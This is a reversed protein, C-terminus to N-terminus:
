ILQVRYANLHLLIMGVGLDPGPLRGTMRCHLFPRANPVLLVQTDPEPLLRAAADAFLAPAPLPCFGLGRTFFRGAPVPLAWGAPAPLLLTAAPDALFWATLCFHAGGCGLDDACVYRFVTPDVDQYM